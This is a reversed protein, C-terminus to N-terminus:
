SPGVELAVEVSRRDLWQIGEVLPTLVLRYTGPQVHAPLIMPAVVRTQQAPLLGVDMFGRGEAVLDGGEGLVRLGIVTAGIDSNLQRSNYTHVEGVNSVLAAVDFWEGATVSLREVEPVVMLDLGRVSAETVEGFFGPEDLWGLADLEAELEGDAVWLGLRNGGFGPATNELTVLRLGGIKEARASSTLVLNGALEGAAPDAPRIRWDPRLWSYNYLYFSTPYGADWVVRDAPDLGSADVVEVIHRHRTQEEYYSAIYRDLSAGGAVCGLVVGTLVGVVPRSWVLAAVLAGLLVAVVAVVWLGRLDYANYSGVSPTNVMFPTRDFYELRRLALPTVVVLVLLATTVLLRDFQLDRRAWLIALLGCAVVVPFLPAMYREYIMFTFEDREVVGKSMFTSSVVVVSLVALPVVGITWTRRFEDRAGRSLAAAAAGVVFIAFTAITLQWLHGLLTALFAMPHDVVTSIGSETQGGLSRRTHTVAPLRLLFWAGVDGLLSWGAVARRSRPALVVIAMTLPLIAIFRGHSFYAGYGLAGLTVWPLRTSPRHAVTCVGLVWSAFVVALFVESFATNAYVIMAPSCTAALAVLVRHHAPQSSGLVSMTRLLVFFLVVLLVTNVDVVLQFFAVPDSEVLAFPALLISFAARYPSRGWALVGDGGAIERANGMYGLGDVVGGATSAPFDNLGNVTLIVVM